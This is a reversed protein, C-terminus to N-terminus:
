NRIGDQEKNLYEFYLGEIKNTVERTARYNKEILAHVSFQKKKGIAETHNKHLWKMLQDQMIADNISDESILKKKSNCDFSFRTNGKGDIITLKSIIRDTYEVESVSFSTKLYVKDGQRKIDADTLTIWIRPATYLERGIGINFCARKFSDSSEGKEKEAFSETGMDEKSIWEGTEPNRISVTCYNKGDKFEHRRQWGFIGFSEDLIKMDARSDKYLLLSCGDDRVTQARCEIEDATLLRIGM